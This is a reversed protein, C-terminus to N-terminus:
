YFERVVISVPIPLKWSASKLASLMVGSSTHMIELLIQGKRVLAIWGKVPGCGKGMRSGKPKKTIPRTIRVKIWVKGLRKTQRAVVRRASELQKETIIGPSQAKLGYAGSRVWSISGKQLFFKKKKHVKNYKIGQM